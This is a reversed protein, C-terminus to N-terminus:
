PFDLLKPRIAKAQDLLEDIERKAIPAPERGV